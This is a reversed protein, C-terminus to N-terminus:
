EWAGPFGALGSDSGEPVHLPLILMSILHLYTGPLFLQLSSDFPLSSAPHSQPHLGPMGEPSGQHSLPHYTQQNALTTMEVPQAGSALFLQPNVRHARESVQWPLLGLGM